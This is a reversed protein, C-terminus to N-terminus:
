KYQYKKSLCDKMKADVDNDLPYGKYNEIIYKAKDSLVTGLRKRGRSNWIEYSDRDILSPTWQEDKYNEITFDSDLYFGGIGTEVINNFGLARENVEIGKEIRKIMGIIEDAYVIGDFCGTMGFEMYGIDHVLNAGGQYSTMLSLAYEGAAQEDFVKSDSVGGTTFVPIDYYRSMDTLAVSLLLFEPAGYSFNMTKMDLISFVGGYVFPAGKSILQNIVLGTLVEATGVSLTGALTVPATGGASPAPTYILPIRKESCFILKKISTDSHQLPTSPECYQLFLPRDKLNKESGRLICSLEYIISLDKEDVSSIILPKTTNCVMTYFAEVEFFEPSDLDSMTGMSMIFDINKCCDGVRTGNICDQRTFLRREGTYPDLIYPCTPGM